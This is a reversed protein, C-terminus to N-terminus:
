KEYDDRKYYLLESNGPMKFKGSLKMDIHSITHAMM